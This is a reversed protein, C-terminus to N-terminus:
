RIPRVVCRKLEQRLYGIGNTLWRTLSSIDPPANAHHVSGDIPEPLWWPAASALHMKEVTLSQLLSTLNTESVVVDFDEVEENEEFSPIAQEIKFAALSQIFDFQWHPHGAGSAQFSPGAGTWDRVGPWELRFIQPKVPDNSFGFHVTLGLEKFIYPKAGTQCEWVERIGLWAILDSPLTVLPVVFTSSGRNRQVRECLSGQLGAWAGDAQYEVDLRIRQRDADLLHPLATNFDQWHRDLEGKSARLSTVGSDSAKSRTRAM